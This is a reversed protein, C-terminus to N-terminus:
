GEQPDVDLHVHISEIAHQLEAVVAGADLHGVNSALTAVTKVLQDMTQRQADTKALLQKVLANTERDQRYGFRLYSEASWYRNGTPDKDGDPSALVGDTQWLTKVDDTNAVLAEKTETGAAWARFGDPTMYAISRDMPQSTFQWILPTWGHPRPQPAAEARSYDAPGWPYAPYWLPLGAPVHGAALDDASTYIGVRQGPFARQVAGTWASVYARIQSATRGHYNRGDSMRELDLWHVFGPRAYPRVAAVYNAAETAPDQNPWAFHYAGPILGAKIIGAIHMDFRPDRSHQGESAKAFAFVIGARRHADWDQAGQYASVDIGRATM